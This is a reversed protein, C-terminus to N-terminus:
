QDYDNSDLDFTLVVTGFIHVFPLLDGNNLTDQKHKHM